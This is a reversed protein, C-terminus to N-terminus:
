YIYLQKKAFMEFAETGDHHCENGPDNGGVRGIGGGKGGRAAALDPYNFFAATVPHCTNDMKSFLIGSVRDDASFSHSVDM